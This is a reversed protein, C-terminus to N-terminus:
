DYAMFFKLAKEKQQNRYICNCLVLTASSLLALGAMAIANLGPHAIKGFPSYAKLMNFVILMPM